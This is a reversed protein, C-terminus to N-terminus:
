LWKHRRYRTRIVTSPRSVKPAVRATPPSELAPELARLM